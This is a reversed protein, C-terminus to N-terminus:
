RRSTDAGVGSGHPPPSPRTAIAHAARIARLLAILAVVQNVNRGSSPEPGGSASRVIRMAPQASPAATGTM